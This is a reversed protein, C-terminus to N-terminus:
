YHRNVSPCGCSGSRDSGSDSGALLAYIVCRRRLFLRGPPGIQRASVRPLQEPHVKGGAPCPALRPRGGVHPHVEAAGPEPRLDEPVLHRGPDVPVVRVVAQHEARARQRAQRDPSRAAERDDRAARHRVAARRGLGVAEEARVQLVAAVVGDHDLPLRRLPGVEQDAAVPDLEAVGPVEDALVGPLGLVGQVPLQPAGAVHQAHVRDPGGALAQDAEGRDLAVVAVDRGLVADAGHHPLLPELRHRDHSAAVREPRRVRAPEDRGGVVDGVLEPRVGRGLREVLVPRERADHVEAREAGERDLVVRRVDGRRADVHLLPLGRGEPVAEIVAPM